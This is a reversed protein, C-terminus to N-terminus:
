FLHRYKGVTDCVLKKNNIHLRPNGKNTECYNNYFAVVSKREATIEKLYTIEKKSFQAFKPELDEYIKETRLRVKTDTADGFIELIMHKQEIYWAELKPQPYFHLFIAFAVILILLNKM